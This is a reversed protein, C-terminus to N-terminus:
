YMELLFTTNINSAKTFSSYQDEFHGTHIGLVNNDEDYVVGGSDGGQSSYTATCIDFLTYTKTENGIKVQFTGSAWVERVYGTGMITSSAGEMTIPFGVLPGGVKNSLPTGLYETINTPMASITCFAADISGSTQSLMCDGIKVNNEKIIDGVSIAHGATVLGFTGNRIAFYGTSFSRNYRDTIESGPAIDAKMIGGNEFFIRSDDMVSSKFKNISEPSCNGLKISIRNLDTRLGFGYFQLEECASRNNEMYQNLEDIVELLENLSYDCPKLTFNDSAARTTLEQRYLECDGKTLVVLKGDKDLFVGGYYDPYNMEGTYSRTVKSAFSMELTQAIESLTKDNSSQQRTEYGTFDDSCSVMVFALLCM